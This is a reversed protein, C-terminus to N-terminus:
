PCAVPPAPPVLPDGGGGPTEASNNDVIRLALYVQHMDRAWLCDPTETLCYVIGTKDFLYGWTRAFEDAVSGDPSRETALAFVGWATDDVIYAGYAQLARAIIRAPETRLSDVPFDPPLALLAGMVAAPNQGNYRLPSHPDAAYGDAQVAPWRYGPRDPGYYLTLNAFVEAKLAHRIVGGPVLEGLRITGGISSLGSGGHAGQTGDGCLDVSPYIYGTTAYSGAQCRHFPQNQKLTRGDPMLIAASANPTGSTHAYVFDAPIPLRELLEGQKLCRNDGSWGAQNLYVEILPSEPALILIDEDATIGDMTFPGFGTPVYVAASGIPRNWISDSSFPWLRPDRSSVPAPLTV